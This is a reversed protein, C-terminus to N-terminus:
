WFGFSAVDMVIVRLAAEVIVGAIVVVIVVLPLALLFLDTVSIVVVATTLHPSM